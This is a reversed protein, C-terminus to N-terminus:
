LWWTALDAVLHATAPAAVGGSALRLGALWIGAAVDLPVVHWGYLPVHILAFAVSTIAIAGPLGLVPRIADFLVGRLVAEEGLVVVATVAVWIAFPDPHIGMPIGPGPRMLAPLLVLALGGGVGLVIDGIRWRAGRWGLKWTLAILYGGFGVGAVFASTSGTGNVAARVLTATLLGAALTVVRPATVGRQRLLVASM